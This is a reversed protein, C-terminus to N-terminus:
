SGPAPSTAETDGASWFLRDGGAGAVFATGDWWDPVVLRGSRAFIASSSRGGLVRLGTGVSERDAALIIM